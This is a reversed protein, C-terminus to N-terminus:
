QLNAERKVGCLPGRPRGNLEFNLRRLTAAQKGFFEDLRIRMACSGARLRGAFTEVRNKHGRRVRRCPILLGCILNGGAIRRRLNQSNSRVPLSSFAYQKLPPLSKSSRPLGNTLEVVFSDLLHFM